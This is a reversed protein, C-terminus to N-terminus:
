DVYRFEASAFLTHCVATWAARTRESEDSVESALEGNARSLFALLTAVEPESPNRGFAINFANQLRILDDDASNYVRRAFGGAQELVFPSNMLYLSQAPVNTTDRAGQPNS